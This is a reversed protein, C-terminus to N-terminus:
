APPLCAAYFDAIDAAFAERSTAWTYFMHGGDYRRLVLRSATDAELRMQDVIRASSQPSTVLDHHGHAIMVRLHPNLAMGYRLDDSAGAPVDLAHADDDPQWSENVDLSLLEYRRETELGVEARLLQNVGATFAPTTGDLTPDPGASPQRDPFPDVATVTADYRGTVLGQDRLLEHSFVHMSVRGGVRRIVAPDLGTLDGLRDFVAEREDEPMSAGRVLFSVYPGAAFDVAAAVADDTSAAGIRSRGHHFAAAAMVPLRDIFAEISYDTDSLPTLELAPSILVAGALGVGEDSHLSRALRGVRYGGYSEGALFVPADWRRNASLWRGIIERM